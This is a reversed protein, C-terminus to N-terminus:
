ASRAPGAAHAARLEACLEDGRGQYRSSCHMPVVIRAGLERAICGAQRATLHNKREAHARDADLFVSEIFLRDVGALLARLRARNDDSFRLDTVCGIREGPVVDLVAAALEGVM